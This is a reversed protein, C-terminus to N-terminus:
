KNIKITVAQYTTKVLDLQGHQLFNNLWQSLQQGNITAKTQLNSQLDKEDIEIYICYAKSLDVDLQIFNIKNNSKSHILWNFKAIESIDLSPDGLDAKTYRSFKSYDQKEKLLQNLKM